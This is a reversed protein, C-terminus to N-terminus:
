IDVLTAAATPVVQLRPNKPSSLRFRFCSGKGPQSEMQIESGLLGLLMRCLTLGM